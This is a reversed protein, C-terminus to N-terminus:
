LEIVHHVPHTGLLNVVEWHPAGGGGLPCEELSRVRRLQAAHSSPSSACAPVSARTATLDEPCM